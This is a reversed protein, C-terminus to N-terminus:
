RELLRSGPASQEGNEGRVAARDVVVRRAAAAVAPDVLLVLERGRAQAFAQAPVQRGSPLVLTVARVDVLADDELPQDFELRLTSGTADLRARVLDPGTTLGAVAGYPALPVVGLPSPAAGPGLNRVAAPEAAALVPRASLAAPVLVRVTAPDPRAVATGRLPTGDNRYLAFRFPVASAVPEDFRFDFLVDSEPAAAVESLEPTTTGDAQLAKVGPTSAQGDRGTVAGPLAGVLVADAVDDVGSTFSVVVTSDDVALVADASRMRGARTWYLFAAPPAALAAEALPEDYTFAIRELTRDLRVALLDPTTTGGNDVAVAAPTGPAPVTSAVSVVDLDAAAGQEAVAVSYRGVPTGPAFGALLCTPDSVLVEVELAAVAVDVDPGLLLLREPPGADRVPRSFCFEVREALTDDLNSPRVAVRALALDPDVRRAPPEVVVDVPAAVDPGAAQVARAASDARGLVSAAVIGGSLVVALGIAM